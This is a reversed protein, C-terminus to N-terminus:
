KRFYYNSNGRGVNSLELSEDTLNAINLCEDKSVIYANESSGLDSSNDCQIEITYPVKSVEKGEYYDIKQGNKFALESKNDSASMWRGEIKLWEKRWDETPKTSEPVLKKDSVAVSKDAKRIYSLTGGRGIYTLELNDENLSSISLCLGDNVVFVTDSEGIDNDICRKALSYPGNAVEKGNYYDIRHGDKFVVESKNDSTDMWRGELGKWQENLSVEPKKEIKPDVLVATNDKKDVNTEIKAPQNEVVKKEVPVTPSGCAVLVLSTALTSAMLLKNVKM